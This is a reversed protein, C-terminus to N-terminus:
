VCDGGEFHKSVSSTLDTTGYNYGLVTCLFRNGHPKKGGRSKWVEYARDLLDKPALLFLSLVERVEDPAGLIMEVVAGENEAGNNGAIDALTVPVEDGDESSIAALDSENVIFSRHRYAELALDLMRRMLATKYLAMFHQPAVGRYMRRIKVFILRSEQVADEWELLPKVRWLNRNWFNVTYGEIAGEWSSPM